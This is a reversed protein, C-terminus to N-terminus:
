DGLKTNNNIPLLSSATLGCVRHLVLPTLYHTFQLNFLSSTFSSTSLSARGAQSVCLIYYVNCKIHTIFHYAKARTEAYLPSIPSFAKNVVALCSIGMALWIM